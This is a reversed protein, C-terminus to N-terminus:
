AGRRKWQWNRRKWKWKLLSGTARESRTDPERSITARNEAIMPLVNKWKWPLTSALLARRVDMARAHDPEKPLVLAEAEDRLKVTTRVDKDM